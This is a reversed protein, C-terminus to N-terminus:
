HSVSSAAPFNILERFTDIKSRSVPIERIDTHLRLLYGRANGSVKHLHHLNVLFSRHCRFFLPDEAFQDEFHKLSNRILLNKVEGNTLYYVKLYNDASELVLLQDKELSLETRGEENKLEVLQHDTAAPSHVSMEGNMELATRLNRKHYVNQRILIQILIPFVGVLVTFGIFLVFAKLSLPFFGLYVSYFLNGTAVLVLILLTHTLERGINWKDENYFGPFLSIGGLQVVLMTLFTILGYGLTILLIPGHINGIGFPQFIYLFLFIFLGISFSSLLHRKIGLIAPFPKRLFNLM